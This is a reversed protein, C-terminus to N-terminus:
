KAPQCSPDTPLPLETVTVQQSAVGEAGQNDVVVLSVGYTVTTCRGVV